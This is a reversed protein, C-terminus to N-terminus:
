RQASLEAIRPETLRVFDGFALKATLTHTGANFVIEKEDQLSRDVYVVLDFSM